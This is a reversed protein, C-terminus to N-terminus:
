DGAAPGGGVSAQRTGPGRTQESPEWKGGWIDATPVNPQSQHGRADQGPKRSAAHQFSFEFDLLPISILSTLEEQIKM